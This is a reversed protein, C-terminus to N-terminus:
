LGGKLALDIMHDICALNFEIRDIIATREEKTLSEPISLVRQLEARNFAIVKDLLYARQTDTLLSNKRKIEQFLEACREVTLM